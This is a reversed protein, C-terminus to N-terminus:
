EVRTAIRVYPSLMTVIRPNARVRIAGFEGMGAVGFPADKMKFTEEALALTAEKVPAPVATWGWRATDRV